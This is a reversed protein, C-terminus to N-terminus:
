GDTKMKGKKGDDEGLVTRIEQANEESTVLEDEAAADVGAEIEAQRAERDLLKQMQPSLSKAKTKKDDQDQEIDMGVLNYGLITM